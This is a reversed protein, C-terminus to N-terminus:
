AFSLTSRANDIADPVSLILLRNAEEVSDDFACQALEDLIGEVLMTEQMFFSTSPLSGCRQIQVEHPLLEISIMASADKYYMELVYSSDFEDTQEGSNDDSKDSSM